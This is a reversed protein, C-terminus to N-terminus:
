ETNRWRYYKLYRKIDKENKVIGSTFSFSEVHFHQFNKFTQDTRGVLDLFVPGLKWAACMFFVLRVCFYRGCMRKRYAEVHLYFLFLYQLSLASLSLEIGVCVISARDLVCAFSRTGYEFLVILLNEKRRCQRTKSRIKYAWRQHEVCFRVVFLSSNFVADAVAYVFCAFSWVSYQVVSRIVGVILRCM